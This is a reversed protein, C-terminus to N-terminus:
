EDIAETKKALAIFSQLINNMMPKSFEANKIGISQLRGIAGDNNVKYFFIGSHFAEGDFEVIVKQPVIQKM